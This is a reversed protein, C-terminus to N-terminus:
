FCLRFEQGTNVHQKKKNQIWEEENRKRKRDILLETTKGHLDNCFQEPETQKEVNKLCRM